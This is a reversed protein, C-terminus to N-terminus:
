RLDEGRHEVIFGMLEAEDDFVDESGGFHSYYFQGVGFYVEIRRGVTSFSIMLADPLTQEISFPMNNRRLIDTFALLRELSDM